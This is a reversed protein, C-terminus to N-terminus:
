LYTADETVEAVFRVVEDLTLKQGFARGREFEPGRLGALDALYESREIEWQGIPARAEEVEIGGWLTGAAEVRHTAALVCALRALAFISWQREEIEHSVAIAERCAREAEDLRGLGYLLDGLHLLSSAKWWTFGVEEALTASEELLALGLEDNGEAVEIDARTGVSVAIGKLDKTRKCIELAEDNLARARVTDGKFVLPQVLRQLVSGVGREDGLRQYIERSKEFLETGEEFRGIIFVIGGWVRTVQAELLEPIDPSGSMLREFWQIGEFPLTGVWFHELAVMLRLGRETDGKEPCRELAARINGIEPRVLDNRQAGTSESTLNASEALRLLFDAHRARMEEARDARELVEVAFEHVTQLMGLRGSSLRRLLNKEVLSQLEDISGEAVSEAGAVSFGGAFISLDRFLRQEEDDLLEYSWEITSRLTRHREPADRRGGTLFPLSESLRLLLEEPPFLSTRAAALEVALPLCDLRHCIQTVAAEPEAVLARERFLAVADDIPLTALQYESEGEIRLAARSTVLLHLRPCDQLLSSLHQAAGLVQELNDLLLLMHREGIHEPLDVKAGLEAAITPLVLAPDTVSALSVWFTGDAFSDVLEAAVQLALRTKGTGGPGTLTVLRRAEIIEVLEQLESSRGILATAQAPLNTANVSRLPPFKAEGLQYLKEPEGLDKLRHRGLDITPEDTLAAKTEASIVIQGGHSASCIRAARHVDVGVYGEETVLPHCSHLAMRVRIPGDLLDEQGKTAASAAAAADSFAVFFADGQTDVEVGGALDFARRLRTRHEGLAAAYGEPGLELLLRTSGEIDTFLFTVAGTPLTRMEGPHRM